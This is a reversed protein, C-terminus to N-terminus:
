VREKGKGITQNSGGLCARGGDDLRTPRHAIIFHNRRRIRRTQGHDKGILPM